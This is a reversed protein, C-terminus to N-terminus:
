RMANELAKIGDHKLHEAFADVAAPIGRVPIGYM